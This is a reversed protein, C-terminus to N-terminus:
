GKRKRKRKRLRQQVLLDMHIAQQSTMDRTHRLRQQRRKARVIAERKEARLMLLAGAGILLLLVGAAKLITLAFPPLGLINEDEEQVPETQKTGGAPASSAAAGSEKEGSTLEKQERAKVKAGAGADEGPAEGQAIVHGAADTKAEAQTESSAASAAERDTGELVKPATESEATLVDFLPDSEAELLAEQDGMRMLNLAARGIERGDYRYIMEAPAGNETEVSLEKTVDSLEAGRPLTLRSEGDIGLTVADTVSLGHVTMDQLVSEQATDYESVRVSQFNDYAFDLLRKTDNYHSNHANLVTVVVTMGNKRCATVLTNGATMTYGTKGAFVGEYYQASNRKLMQHRPYVTNWPDNPDPYRKIPAHTWYTHSEIDAFEPNQVAAALILCMDYATTYHEPDTLGSPNNFHTGKCGLEKAKENMMRVFVDRDTDSSKEKLEPHKAGVHEALANAVENASAFLLAYLCDRVSLQDGESAGILTANEEEFAVASASFTVKENLNDCNELTVLATMVKTISAPYYATNENKGYLVVGSDADMVCAGESATYVDSSWPVAAAAAMGFSQLTAAAALILGLCRRITSRLKKM